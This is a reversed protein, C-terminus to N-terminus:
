DDHRHKVSHKLLLYTMAEESILHYHVDGYHLDDGDIFNTHGVVGLETMYYHFFDGFTIQNPTVPNHIYIDSISRWDLQDSRVVYETMVGIRRVTPSTTDKM